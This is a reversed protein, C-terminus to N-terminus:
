RKRPREVIVRSRSALVLSYTAGPVLTDWSNWLLFEGFRGNPLSFSLGSKRSHLAVAGDVVIAEGLAADLLAFRSQSAPFLGVLAFVAAVAVRLAPHWEEKAMAGAAVVGFVVGLSLLLVGKAALGLRFRTSIVLLM